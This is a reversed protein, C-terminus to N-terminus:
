RELRPEFAERTRSRLDDAVSNPVLEGTGLIRSLHVFNEANLKIKLM